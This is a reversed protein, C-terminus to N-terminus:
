RKRELTKRYRKAATIASNEPLASFLAKRLGLTNAYSAHNNWAMVSDLLTDALIEGQEFQKILKKLHQQTEIPM